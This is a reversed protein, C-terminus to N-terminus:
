EAGKRKLGQIQRGLSDHEADCRGIHQDLKSNTARLTEGHEDVKEEIRHVTDGLAKSGPGGGNPRMEHRLKSIENTMQSSLRQEMGVFGNEKTGLVAERVKVDAEDEAGQRKLYRILGILTGILAVVAVVVGAWLYATNVTGAAAGLM